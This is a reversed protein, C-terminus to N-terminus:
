FKQRLNILSALYYLKKKLIYDNNINQYKSINFQIFYNFYIFLGIYGVIIGVIFTNLFLNLNFQILGANPNIILDIVAKLFELTFYVICVLRICKSIESRDIRNIIIIDNNLIEISQTSLQM